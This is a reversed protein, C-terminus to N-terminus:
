AAEGGQRDISRIMNVAVAAVQVMEARVKAPDEEALAEYVEELLISDWGMTDSKVRGNNQVKLENARALFNRRLIREREEFGGIVPHNQEGWKEDQAALEAVVEALVPDGETKPQRAKRPKREAKEIADEIGQVIEAGGTPITIDIVNNETSM